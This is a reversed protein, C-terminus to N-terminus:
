WQLLWQSILLLTMFMVTGLIGRKMDEAGNCLDESNCTCYLTKVEPGGSRSICGDNEKATGDYFGCSRVVRKEKLGIINVDMVTKRCMRTPSFSETSTFMHGPFYKDKLCDKDEFNSHTENVCKKYDYSFDEVTTCDKIISNRYAEDSLDSCRKDDHSNCVYCKYPETM